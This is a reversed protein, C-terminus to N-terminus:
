FLFFFLFVLKLEFEVEGDDGKSTYFRITSDLDVTALSFFSKKDDDSARERERDEDVM